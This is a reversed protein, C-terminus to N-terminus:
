LKGYMNTKVPDASSRTEDSISSAAFVSPAPLRRRGQADRQREPQGRDEAGEDHDEELRDGQEARGRQDREGPAELHHGRYQPM